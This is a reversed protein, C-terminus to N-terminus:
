QNISSKLSQTALTAYLFCNLVSRSRVESFVSLRMLNIAAAETGLAPWKFMVQVEVVSERM